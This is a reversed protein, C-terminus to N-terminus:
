YFLKNLYRMGPRDGATLQSLAVRDFANDHRYTTFATKEKMEHAPVPQENKYFEDM